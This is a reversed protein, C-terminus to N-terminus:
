ALHVPFKCWKDFGKDCKLGRAVPLWVTRRMRPLFLSLVAGQRVEVVLERYKCGSGTGSGLRHAM